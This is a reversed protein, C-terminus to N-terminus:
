EPFIGDADEPLDTIGMAKLERRLAAEVLVPHPSPLTRNNVFFSPTGTIGIAKGDLVQTRVEDMLAPNELCPDFKSMDLELGAAIKRMKRTGLAGQNNFVEDHMEWFKGQRRACQVAVAAECADPHLDRGLGPNCDTGLPYNKFIFRVYEGYQHIVPQMFYGALKCHPCEFDAFEVVTIIGEPNGKVADFPQIAIDVTELSDYSALFETVAAKTEELAKAREEPSIEEEAAETSGDESPTTAGTALSPPKASDVRSNYSGWGVMLVVLGLVAGLFFLQKDAGVGDSAAAKFGGGHGLLAVVLTALTVADLGLCFLCWTKLLAAQVFVLWLSFALAPLTLLVILGFAGGRKEDKGLAGLLALLIIVAYFPVAPLSVPLERGGMQISSYKSSNVKKCSVTENVECASDFDIEPQYKLQYHIDTLHNALGIGVLALVILIWPAAKSM